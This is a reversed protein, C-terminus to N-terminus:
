DQRKRLSALRLGHKRACGVLGALDHELDPAWLLASGRLLSQLGGPVSIQAPEDPLREAVRGFCLGRCFFNTDPLDQQHSSIM